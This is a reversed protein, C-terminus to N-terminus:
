DLLSSIIVRGEETGFGLIMEKLPHWAIASVKHTFKQQIKQMTVTRIHPLSLDWINIVGDRM